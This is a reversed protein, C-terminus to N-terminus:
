MPRGAILQAPTLTSVEQVFSAYVAIDPDSRRMRYFDQVIQAQQERNFSALGARQEQAARLGDRGGYRYGAGWRQAHLAQPMYIAGVQQYQWVHTLEHILVDRRGDGWGNVTHFSTYDRHSFAPGLVARRDVRVLRLNLASGFVSSAERIEEDILARTNLKVLDVLTEYVEGVAAIELLDVTRCGLWRAVDLWTSKRGLSRWWAPSWPRLCRVGEWMGRLLRGVRIPLVAIWHAARAFIGDVKDWARGGTRTALNLAAAASRRPGPARRSPPPVDAGYRWV